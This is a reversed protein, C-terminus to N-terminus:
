GIHLVTGCDEGTVILTSLLVESVSLGFVLTM